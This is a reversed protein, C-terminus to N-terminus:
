DRWPRGDLSLVDRADVWGSRQGDAQVRLWLPTREVVVVVEGTLALLGGDGALSAVPRLATPRAVVAIRPDQLRQTQAHAVLAAGLALLLVPAVTRWVVGRSALAWGLLWLAIAIWGLVAAPIPWVTAPSGIPLAGVRRLHARAHGDLPALRLARQWGVVAMATDAARWSAGGLDYWVTARQPVARAALLLEAAARAPASDVVALAVAARDSAMPLPAQAAAHTPGLGLLVCLALTRVPAVGPSSPLSRAEAIAARVVAAVDTGVPVPPASAAYCAADLAALAAVVRAATEPTVGERRLARQAAAPNTWPVQLPGFREALAAHVLRRCDAATATAPLRRLARVASVRSTHPRRQRWRQVVTPLPALVFLLWYWWWATPPPWAARGWGRLTTRPDPVVAGVGAAPLSPMRGVDAASVTVARPATSATQYAARDPDFFPYRIPPIHADGSSQPTVLWSFVKRGAVPGSASDILVQEDSPVVSAWSLALRPRPVLAIHGRGVVEVQLVFPEGQRVTTPIAGLEVRLAGIAGDWGSPQGVLPPELATIAVAASRVTRTEERSFFSAGTPLAYTLVAPAVELPGATVAFLTRGFRHVEYEVGDRIVRRASDRDRLDYGVLGRLDPPVYEPNRRLRQRVDGRIFVAIEYRAAQGLYVTAPTVTATVAVEAGVPGQGQGQASGGIQAALGLALLRM